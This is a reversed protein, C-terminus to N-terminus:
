EDLGLGERIEASTAIGDELLADAEIRECLSMEEIRIDDIFAEAYRILRRARQVEPDTKKM